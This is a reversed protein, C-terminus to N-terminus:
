IDKVTYRDAPASKTMGVILDLLTAEIPIKRDNMAKEPNRHLRRYHVDGAASFPFQAQTILFLMVGMAYVDAPPGQYTAGNLEPGM